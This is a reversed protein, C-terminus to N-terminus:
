KKSANKKKDEAKPKLINNYREPDNLLKRAETIFKDSDLMNEIGGEQYYYCRVITNNIFNVIDKKSTELDKALNHTLKKKLNEFEEKADDYYGEFRALKELETVVKKTQPDYNFGSEIVRKKFEEYDKDTISFNRAPAITKHKYVYDVIYENMVDTSDVASMSLYFAINPITDPIIKVDPEIGGGDKVPRGNKTYFINATKTTDKEAANKRYDIAQICRGSPIYYKSTTFKMTGNHPLGTTMQVLGKGFTKTGMVVGRDLDQLAGSTIESASATEDDVLLVIPMETDLPAENTTYDHNTRKMKGKNSVVVSNQPIFMGVIDAAESESGGGNSRLDFILSQMGQEKLSLFADKTKKACGETFSVLRIYGIKDDIMGYYPVAPQNIARRTIDFTMKKNTTPRLIELKFTSGAEGRLKDSVQSVNKGAMSTDNICLIIDGKRLGAEAAPTNAYPEEIIVKDHKLSYRVVSGIGGYKGTIMFKLEKDDDEPYYVTYPDLSRLMSNIAIGITKDADISDVYMMDLKKYISNFIELNKNIKLNHDIDTQSKVPSTMFLIALLFLIKKKM